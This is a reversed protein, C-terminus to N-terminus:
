GRKNKMENYQKANDTLVRNLENIILDYYERDNQEKEYFDQETEIFDRYIDSHLSLFYSTKYIIESESKNPYIIENTNVDSAYMMKKANIGFRCVKKVGKLKLNGILFYKFNAAYKSRLHNVYNLFNDLHQPLKVEQKINKLNPYIKFKISHVKKRLKSAVEWDFKIDTHKLLDEKAKNLIQVRIDKYQYSAPIGFKDILFDLEFIVTISRNYRSNKNYEDKLFEYLRISYDSRLRLINSLDYKLYNKKLDLIYPFIKSSIQFEIMGDGDKYEISSAWNAKLFNKGEKPILLPKSLIEDTADDLKKYYDKGKLEALDIFDKIAVQYVQDPKDSSQVASILSTILKLALPNLKYRSKVLSESKKVENNEDILVLNNM